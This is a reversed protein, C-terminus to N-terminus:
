DGGGGDSLKEAGVGQCVPHHHHSPWKLVEVTFLHWVPHVMRPPPQLGENHGRHGPCMQALFGSESFDKNSGGGGYVGIGPMGVTMGRNSFVYSIQLEVDPASTKWQSRGGLDVDHYTQWHVVLFGATM